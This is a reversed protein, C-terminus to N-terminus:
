LKPFSTWPQRLINAPLSAKISVELFQDRATGPDSMANTMEGETQRTDNLLSGPQLPFPLSSCFSAGSTLAYARTVLSSPTIRRFLQTNHSHFPLLKQSSIKKRHPKLSLVWVAQKAMPLIAMGFFLRRRLTTSWFLRPFYSLIRFRIACQYRCSLDLCSKSQPQRM